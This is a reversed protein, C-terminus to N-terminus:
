LWSGMDKELVSAADMRGMVRLINMLDTVATEERHRAEWLDLINETPSPKTAFFIIYRDVTLAQALMRWDNGRANPPDLLLCLQHRIHPPLRCYM